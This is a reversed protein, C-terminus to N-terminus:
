PEERRIDDGSKGRRRARMLTSLTSSLNRAIGRFATRSGEASPENVVMTAAPAHESESTQEVRGWVSQSRVSGLSPTAPLGREALDGSRHIARRAAPSAANDRRLSDAVVASLSSSLPSIYPGPLMRSISNRGLTPPRTRNPTSTYTEHHGGGDQAESPLLPASTTSLLPPTQARPAGPHERDSLWPNDEVPLPPSATPSQAAGDSSFALSPAQSSQYRRLPAHVSSRGDDSPPSGRRRKSIESAGRSPGDSAVAGQITADDSMEDTQRGRRSTPLRPGHDDDGDEDEDENEHEDGRGRGSTILYVGLFTLACGFLFKMMQAADAHEFDRYLIASGVIVSLTFLVFQTPIVQTSDFRQLARNVYKIQLLATSFLIALLVYTIPFTLVHWLTYSLLTAVGKTSLATYGGFLAVLGLDILITRHGYRSSAWMGLAILTVTIAVYLEFEWRTIADLIEDPGLVTDSPKASLVVTVAGGIAIIVGLLDRRRFHEKLMIPAIVCNSVLAVVGLPSVISAPAFGYALFNGAEGTTMLLVGAWWYPSRLYTQRREDSEDKEVDVDSQMESHAYDLHQAGMLRATETPGAEGEDDEDGDVVADLARRRGRGLGGNRAGNMATGYDGAASRKAQGLKRPRLRDDQERSLRIHAYRQINLAFSILINGVIATIIGILSSWGTLDSDDNGAAGIVALVPDLLMNFGGVAGTVPGRVVAIATSGDSVM